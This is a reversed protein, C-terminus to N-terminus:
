AYKWCMWVINFMMQERITKLGYSTSYITSYYYEYILCLTTSKRSDETPDHSSMVSWTALYATNHWRASM